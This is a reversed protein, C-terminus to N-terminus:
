DWSECQGDCSSGCDGECDHGCESKEDRTMCEGFLNQYYMKTQEFSGTPAQEGAADRYKSYPYHHLYGGFVRETDAFYARTDLIHYHWVTDMTKSPVMSYKPPPYNLCLTLFRKYEVEADDCQQASWGIGESPERMKIKVMELDISAVQVPIGRSMLYNIRQASIPKAVKLQAHPQRAVPAQSLAAQM